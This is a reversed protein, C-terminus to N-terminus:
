LTLPSAQFRAGNRKFLLCTCQDIYWRSLLRLFPPFDVGSVNGTNFTRLCFGIVIQLIFRGNAPVNLSDKYVFANM